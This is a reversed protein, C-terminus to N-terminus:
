SAAFERLLRQRAGNNHKERARIESCPPTGTPYARSHRWRRPLQLARVVGPPAM